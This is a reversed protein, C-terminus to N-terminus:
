EVESSGSCKHLYALLVLSQVLQTKKLCSANGQWMQGHGTLISVQQGTELLM